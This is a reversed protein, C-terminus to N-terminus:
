RNKLVARQPEIGRLPVDCFSYAAWPGSGLLPLEPTLRRIGDLARWFDEVAQRPILYCGEFIRGHSGHMLRESRNGEEPALARVRDLGFPIRLPEDATAAVLRVKLGMEVRGRFRALQQSLEEVNLGVTAELEAGSAFAIGLRFPAVSSCTEFALGVVRDHWVAARVEDDCT